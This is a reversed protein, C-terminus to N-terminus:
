RGLDCGRLLGMALWVMGDHGGAGHVSVIDPHALRQATEVEALFRQRAEDFEAPALGDGLALTKLAVHRRHTEDYALHVVGMAGRGLPRLLRFPGLKCQGLPNITPAPRPM